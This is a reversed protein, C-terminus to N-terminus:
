DSNLEWKKNDNTILEVVGNITMVRLICGVAVDQPLPLPTWIKTKPQEPFDLELMQEDLHVFRIKYKEGVKLDIM